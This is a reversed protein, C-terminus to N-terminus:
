LFKEATIDEWRRNGCGDDRIYFSASKYGTQVFRIDEVCHKSFNTDFAGVLNGDTTFVEGFECYHMDKLVVYLIDSLKDAFRLTPSSSGDHVPCGSYLQVIYCYRKSIM